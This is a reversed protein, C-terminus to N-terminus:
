ARAEPKHGKREEKTATRLYNVEVPTLFRWRSVSLGKDTIKGIQARRLALVKYGVALFMRRVQRNLGQSIVMQVLSEKNSRKLVKLGTSQTRGEPLWVGKKLQEIAESTIGGRLRAIYTKPLEYKPHTLRNALELDNTLIILGTTDVDLRGVCIIRQKAGILDIARPRGEPDSNTCIVGKPKNLLYYVKAPETLRRGRVTVVDVEPDIFAPLTDIVHGNVKVLGQVILQECNRRSDVGAAAMYKQLREQAMGCLTDPM